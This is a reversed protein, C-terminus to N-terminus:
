VRPREQELRDREAWATMSCVDFCRAVPVCEDLEDELAYGQEEVFVAVRVKIVRDYDEETEVFRVNYTRTPTSNGNLVAIKPRCFSDSNPCLPLV